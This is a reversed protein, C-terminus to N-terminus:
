RRFHTTRTVGPAKRCGHGLSGDRVGERWKSATQSSLGHKDLVAQKGGHPAADIEALIAKMEQATRRTGGCSM